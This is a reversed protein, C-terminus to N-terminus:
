KFSNKKELNINFISLTHSNTAFDDLLVLSRDIEKIKDFPDSKYM